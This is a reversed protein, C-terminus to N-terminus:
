GVQTICQGCDEDPLAIERRVVAVLFCYQQRAAKNSFARLPRRTIWPMEMQKQKWGHECDHAM